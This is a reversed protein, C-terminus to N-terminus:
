QQMCDGRDDSDFGVNDKRIRSALNEITLYMESM